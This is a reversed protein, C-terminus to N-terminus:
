DSSRTAVTLRGWDQVSLEAPRASASVGAAEFQEASVLNSLSKRLMKRRQGFAQRVLVFVDDVTLGEIDVAPRDLRVMHVLASEVNPKPIFVTAPVRGVVKATTWYAVKVSPIGYEPTDPSAAFREAVERQVMVTFEAVQPVLDLMDLVLPTGVNYPLNAVLKWGGGPLEVDWDVTTADANLIRVRKDDVRDGLNERLAPILEQDIEIALVEAGTDALAATLSGIGPGIEVVRDEPGIGALRVIRDITNPDVVFNQGLAKRPSIGHKEMLETAERGGLAM